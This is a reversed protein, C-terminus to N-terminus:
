WKSSGLSSFKNFNGSGALSCRKYNRSSNCILRRSTFFKKLLRRCEAQRVGAAVKCHHNRGPMQLLNVRGGAGGSSPDSCGFVVQSLRVQVMAGACMPCPEKTVYLVCDTLRWDGVISEAQRIALIEAHATADRLVEVQNHACAIVRERRVIAVGIPVEGSKLAKRAQHLAKGMFYRDSMQDVVNSLPLVLHVFM